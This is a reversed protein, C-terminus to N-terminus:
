KGKAPTLSTLRLLDSVGYLHNFHDQNTMGAYGLVHFGGLDARTLLRAGACNTGEAAQRKAKVAEILYDAALTTTNGRYRAEPPYLHSFWLTCEGAAARRAYTVFPAMAVPDLETDKGKVRPAYLSDALVVDTIQHTFREQKLVERVASYGGSFSVLCIRGIAASTTGERALGDRTANLIQTVADSDRFVREYEKLSVSILVANKHADHFAQEAFWRAGHFFLVVDTSSSLSSDYFEPVFADGISAPFRTGPVNRRAPSKVEGGRPTHRSAASVPGSTMSASTAGAPMLFVVTCLLAGLALRGFSFCHRSVAM